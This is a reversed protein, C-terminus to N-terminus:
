IGPWEWSIISSTLICSTCSTPCQALNVAWKHLFMASYKHIIAFRYKQIIGFSELSKSPLTQLKANSM